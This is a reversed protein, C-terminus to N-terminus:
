RTAVRAFFNWDRGVLKEDATSVIAVQARMAIENATMMAHQHDFFSEAGDAIEAAAVAGVHVVLPDDALFFKVVAVLDFDAHELEFDFERRADAAFLLGLDFVDFIDGLRM